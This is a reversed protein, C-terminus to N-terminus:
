FWYFFQMMELWLGHKRFSRFPIARVVQNEMRFKWSGWTVPLFGWPRAERLLSGGIAMHSYSSQKRETTIFFYKRTLASKANVESKFPRWKALKCFWANISKNNQRRWIRLSPMILGKRDLARCGGLFCATMLASSTSRCNTLTLRKLVDWMKKSIRKSCSWLSM